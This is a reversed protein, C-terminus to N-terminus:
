GESPTIIDLVDGGCKLRTGDLEETYPITLTASFSPTSSIQKFCWQFLSVM